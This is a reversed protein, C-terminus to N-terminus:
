KLAMLILLAAMFINSALEYKMKDKEDTSIRELIMNIVFSAFIAVIGIISFINNM